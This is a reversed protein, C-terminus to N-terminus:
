DFLSVDNLIDIDELDLGTTLDEVGVAVAALMLQPDDILEDMEVAADVADVEDPVAALMNAQPAPTDDPVFIPHGVEGLDPTHDPVFIPHGAAEGPAPSAQRQRKRGRRRNDEDLVGTNSPGAGMAQAWAASRKKHQRNAERSEFGLRASEQANLTQKAANLLLRRMLDEEEAPRPASAQSPDGHPLITSTPISPKRATHNTEPPDDLASLQYQNATDLSWLYQFDEYGAPVPQREKRFPRRRLDKDLSLFLIVIAPPFLHSRGTTPDRLIVEGTSLISTNPHVLPPM